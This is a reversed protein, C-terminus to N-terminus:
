ISNVGETYAAALEDWINEVDSKDAKNIEIDAVRQETTPKQSPAIEDEPYFTGTADDYLWGEPPTPKVFREDGEKTADYGWGEFVYDPAEVFLDSPPFRGLTSELTPFYPTADYHCINSAIQFIKVSNGGLCLISYHM